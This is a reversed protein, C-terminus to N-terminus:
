KGKKPALGLIRGLAESLEKGQDGSCEYTIKTHKPFQYFM